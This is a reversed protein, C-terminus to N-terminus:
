AAEVIKYSVQTIELDHRAAWEKTIAVWEMAGAMALEPHYFNRSVEENKGYTITTKIM